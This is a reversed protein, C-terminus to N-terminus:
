TTAAKGAQLAATSAKISEAIWDSQTQHCDPSMCPSCQLVAGHACSLAIRLRSVYERLTELEVARATLADAAEEDLTVDYPGDGDRLGQILETIPRM